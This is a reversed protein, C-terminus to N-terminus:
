GARGGGPAGTERAIEARLARLHAPADRAGIAAERILWDFHRTLGAVRAADRFALYHRGLYVVALIPGFV